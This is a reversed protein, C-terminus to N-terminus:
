DSDPLLQIDFRIMCDIFGCLHTIDDIFSAFCTFSRMYEKPLRYKIFDGLRVLINKLDDLKLRMEKLENM